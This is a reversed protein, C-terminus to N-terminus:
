NCNFVRKGITFVSYRILLSYHSFVENIKGGGPPYINGVSAWQGIETICETYRRKRDDRRLLLIFVPQYSLEKNFYHSCCVQKRPQRRKTLVICELNAVYLYPHLSGYTFWSDVIATIVTMKAKHRSKRCNGQNQTVATIIVM